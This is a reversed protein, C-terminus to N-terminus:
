LQSLQARYWSQLSARHARTICQQDTEDVVVVLGAKATPDEVHAHVRSVMAGGRM